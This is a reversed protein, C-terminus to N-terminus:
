FLDHHLLQQKAQHQLIQCQEVTGEPQIMILKGDSCRDLQFRLVLDQILFVESSRWLM